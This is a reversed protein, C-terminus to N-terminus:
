DSASSVPVHCPCVGFPMFRVSTSTCFSSAKVRVSVRSLSDVGIRLSPRSSGEGELCCEAAFGLGDLSREVLGVHLGPERPLPGLPRRHQFPHHLLLLGKSSGMGHGNIRGAVHRADTRRRAPQVVLLGSQLDSDALIM